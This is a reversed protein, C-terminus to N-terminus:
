GGPKSVKVLLLSQCRCSMRTSVLELDSVCGRVVCGIM